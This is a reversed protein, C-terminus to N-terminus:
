KGGSKREESIVQFYNKEQTYLNKARKETTEATKNKNLLKIKGSKTEKKPTNETASAPTSAFSQM